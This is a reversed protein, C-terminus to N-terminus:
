EDGEDDVAQVGLVKGGLSSLLDRLPDAKQRNDKEFAGIIKASRELSSNKDWFKYEIAGDVDFKFSAIAAATDDDLEHPLKITGDERFLRRPDSFAVRAIEKLLRETSLEIEVARSVRERDMRDFLQQKRTEIMSVIEPDKTMRYGQKGAGGPTYGAQIAADTANGGNTVYAEVFLRKKDMAAAKSTGNKPKQKKAAM